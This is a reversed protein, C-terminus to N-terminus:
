RLRAEWDDESTLGGDAWTWQIQEYAFGVRELRTDDQSFGEFSSMRANRLLTTFYVEDGDAGPRVSRLEVETLSEGDFMAGLLSTTARDQPKVVVLPAHQRRGIPLGSGTDFPISLSHCAGVVEIWDTALPHVADGEVDGQVQGRVRLFQRSTGDGTPGCSPAGPLTSFAYNAREAEAVSGDASSVEIQDYVFALRQFARATGPHAPDLATIQEIRMLHAGDLDVHGALVPAGLDDEDFYAISVSAQDREILSRYLGVTAPDIQTVISFPAHVSRGTPLGSAPDLSAAVKHCTAVAQISGPAPEGADGQLAGGVVGTVDVFIGLSAPANPLTDGPCLSVPPNTASTGNCAYRVTGDPAEVRIGGAECNDGPSEDSIVVDGGDEGDVGNEGDDGDEGDIGDPGDVGDCVYYVAGQGDDIRVGGDPCNEGAPEAAVVFSPSDPKCGSSLLAAVGLSLPGGFVRTM